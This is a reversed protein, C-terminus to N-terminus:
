KRQQREKWEKTRRMQIVKNVHNAMVAIKTCEQDDCEDIYKNWKDAGALLTPLAKFEPDEQWVDLKFTNNGESHNKVYEKLIEFTLSSRTKGERRAIKDLEELINVEDVPYSFSSIIWHKKDKIGM